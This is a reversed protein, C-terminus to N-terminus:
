MQGSLQKWPHLESLPKLKKQPSKGLATQLNGPPIKGLFQLTDWELVLMARPRNLELVVLFKMSVQFLSKGPLFYGSMDLLFAVIFNNSVEQKYRYGDM